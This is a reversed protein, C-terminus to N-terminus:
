VPNARRTELVRMLAAKALIRPRCDYEELAKCISRVARRDKHLGSSEEARFVRWRGTTAEKAWIRLLEAQRQGFAGLGFAMLDEDGTAAAQLVRIVPAKDDGLRMSAMGVRVQGGSARAAREAEDETRRRWPRDEDEQRVPVNLLVQRVEADTLYGLRVVRARSQITLLPQSTTTLIFHTQPPPEELIKLLGNLAEGSSHDISGVVVKVKGVPRTRIFRRIERAGEADIARVHLLDASGAGHHNALHRALTTKGISDPGVLLVTPPLHSELELRVAEHGIVGLGTGDGM